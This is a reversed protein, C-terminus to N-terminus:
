VISTKIALAMLVAGIIIGVVLWTVHSTSFLSSVDAPRVHHVLKGGNTDKTDGTGVKANGNDNTPVKEGAKSEVSEVKNKEESDM